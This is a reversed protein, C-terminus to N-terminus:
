PLVPFLSWWRHHLKKLVSSFVVWTFMPMTVLKHIAGWYQMFGNCQAQDCCNFQVKLFNCVTLLTPKESVKLKTTGCQQNQQQACVSYLLFADASTLQVPLVCHIVIFNTLVFDTFNFSNNIYLMCSPLVACRRDLSKGRQNGTEGQDIWNCVRDLFPIWVFYSKWLTAPHVTWTKQSSVAFCVACAFGDQEGKCPGSFFFFTDIMM